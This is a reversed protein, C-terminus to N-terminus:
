LSKRNEDNLLSFELDGFNSQGILHTRLPSNNPAIYISLTMQDDPLNVKHYQFSTGYLEHEQFKPRKDIPRTLRISIPKTTNTVSIEGGDPRSLIITVVSGQVHSNGHTSSYPNEKSELVKTLVNSGDSNSNLDSLGPLRISTEGASISSK